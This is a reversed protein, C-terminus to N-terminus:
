DDFRARVEDPIPHTIPVVYAYWGIHSLAHGPPPEINDALAFRLTGDKKFVHEWQYVRLCPACGSAEVEIRFTVRPEIGHQKIWPVFPLRNLRALDSNPGHVDFVGSIV